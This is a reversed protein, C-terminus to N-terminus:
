GARWTTLIFSASDVEGPKRIRLCGRGADGSLTRARWSRSACPGSGGPESGTPQDTNLTMDSPAGPLDPRASVEAAQPPAWPECPRSRSGACRARKLRYFRNWNPMWLLEPTPSVPTPALLPARTLPADPMVVFAHEKLTRRMLLPGDCPVAASRQKWRAGAAPVAVVAATVWTGITGDKTEPAVGHLFTVAAAAGRTSLLSPSTVRQCAVGAHSIKV